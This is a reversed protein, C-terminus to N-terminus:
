RGDASGEFRALLARARAAGEGDDGARRRREVLREALIRAQATDGAGLTVTTLAELVDMARADDPGHTADRDVLVARLLRTAEDVEGLETLASALNLAALTAREDERGVGAAEYGAVVREQLARADQLEGSQKAVAASWALATLTEPAHPGIVLTRGAVVHALLPRAAEPQGLGSQCRALQVEANLTSEHEPGVTSRLAAVVQERVVSEEAGRRQRALQDAVDVMARSSFPSDPGEKRLAWELVEQSQALEEDPTQETGRLM